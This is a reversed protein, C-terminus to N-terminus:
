TSGDRKEAKIPAFAGPLAIKKEATLIAAKNKENVLYDSAFHRLDM